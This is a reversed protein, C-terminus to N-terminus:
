FAGCAQDTSFAANMGIAKAHLKQLLQFKRVEQAHKGEMYRLPKLIIAQRARVASAPGGYHLVGACRGKVARARSLPPSGAASAPEGGRGEGSVIAQPVVVAPHRCAPCGAVAAPSTFGPGPQSPRHRSARAGPQPQRAGPYEGPATDRKRGAVGGRAAPVPTDLHPELCTTGTSAFSTVPAQPLRQTM